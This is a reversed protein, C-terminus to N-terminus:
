SITGDRIFIYVYCTKGIQYGLTGKNNYHNYNCSFRSFPKTREGTTAWFVSLSSSSEKRCIVMPSMPFAVTSNSEKQLSPPFSLACASVSLLLYPDPVPCSSKVLVDREPFCCRVLCGRSLYGWFVYVNNYNQPSKLLIYQNKKEPYRRSKRVM